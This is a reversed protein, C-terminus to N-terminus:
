PTRDKLARLHSNPECSLKGSEYRFVWGLNLVHWVWLLLRRTTTPEETRAM